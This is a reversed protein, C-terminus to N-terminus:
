RHHICFSIDFHQDREPQVPLGIVRVSRMGKPVMSVIRCKGFKIHELKATRKTQPAAMAVVTLFLTLIFVKLRM